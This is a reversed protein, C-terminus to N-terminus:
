GAILQFVYGMILSGIIGSGLYIAFIQRKVLAFVATMAPITTIPGAILFALAAGHGMGGDLLGQVIPIAAVGSTYVPIGIATALPISFLQDKGFLSSIWAPDIYHAILSELVFAVLLWKGLFISIGWFEPWFNKWFGSETIQVNNEAVDPESCGCSSFSLGQLQNSLRGKSSLFYILYGAGAGIMIASVLRAVAYQTGLIGATLFFMGPSMLPSSLWFAMIPGLPVGSVLLAAILPIVGCSCIPVIAGVVAAGLIAVIEKRHFVAKIRESFGSVTVWASIAVSIIFFPLISVIAKGVFTLNSGVNSWFIDSNLGPFIGPGFILFSLFILGLAGCIWLNIHKRVLPTQTKPPLIHFKHPEIQAGCCTQSKGIKFNTEKKNNQKETIQAGM